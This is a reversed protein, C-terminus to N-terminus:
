CNIWRQRRSGEYMATMVRDVYAAEPASILATGPKGRIAEFFDEVPHATKPPLETWPKKGDAGPVHISRFYLDDSRTVYAQGETGWVVFDHPDTLDVWGAALTGVAGCKFKLMGEGFEDCGPYRETAKQVCATAEEVEGMWWILLDLGHSGMDGFGGVGSQLPDAMWRWEDDFKGQLGGNHVCSARVRTVKGFSGKQIHERLFQTYGYVRKGYGTQFIVGAKHVADAIIEADPGNLGLPKEVFLHKRAATVQLAIERHRNTESCILVADLGPSKLLKGLDNVAPAGLEGAYKEARQPLPDWVGLLKTDKRQKLLNVYFPMHIHAVGAIALQIM